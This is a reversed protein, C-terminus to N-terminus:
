EKAARDISEPTTVDVILLKMPLGSSSFSHEQVLKAELGFPELAALAEDLAPRDEQALIAVRTAGLNVILGEFLQRPNFPEHLLNVLKPFHPSVWRQDWLYTSSVATYISGYTEEVPYWIRLVRHPDNAVLIKFSKAVISFAKRRSPAPLRTARGPLPDNWVGVWEQAPNHKRELPCATLFSDFNRAVLANMLGFLGIALAPAHLALRQPRLLIVIAGVGVLMPFVWVNALRLTGGNIPALACLCAVFALAVALRYTAASWGPVVLFLLGGIALFLAPLLLSAYFSFQMYHLFHLGEFGLMVVIILVFGGVLSRVVAPRDISDIARARWAVLAAILTVVPTVLWSAHRIWSRDGTTCVGGNPLMMLMSHIWPWFFLARGCLRKNILCLATACLAIGLVVYLMGLFLNKREKDRPLTVLLWPFLIALPLYALNTFLFLASTAGAALLPVRWYSGLVARSIFFATVLAYTVGFGDAHALGITSLFMANGGALITTLLATREGLFAKLTYYLSFLSLYYLGLHLVLMAVDPPLVRFVAAGPLIIPLRTGHYALPFAQLQVRPALFYSVYMWPDVTDPRPYLWNTDVLLLLLPLALLVLIPHPSCVRDIWRQWSSSSAMTEEVVAM